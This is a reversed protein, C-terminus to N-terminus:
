ARLKPALALDVDITVTISGKIATNQILNGVVAELNAATTTLLTSVNKELGDAISQVSTALRPELKDLGLIDM